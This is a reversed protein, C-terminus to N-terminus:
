NLAPAILKLLKWCLRWCLMIIISWNVWYQSLPRLDPSTHTYQTNGCLFTNCRTYDLVLQTLGVHCLMINHCYIYVSVNQINITIYRLINESHFSTIIFSSQVPLWSVILQCLERRYNWHDQWMTKTVIAMCHMPYGPSM